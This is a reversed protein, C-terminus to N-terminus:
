FSQPLHHARFGNCMEQFILENLHRGSCLNTHLYSNYTNFIALYIFVNVKTLITNCKNYYVNPPSIVSMESHTRARTNTSVVGRNSSSLLEYFFFRFCYKGTAVGEALVFWVYIPESQFPHNANSRLAFSFFNHVAESALRKRMM